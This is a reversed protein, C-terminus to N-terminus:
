DRRVRDNRMGEKFVYLNMMMIHKCHGRYKSYAPCSCVLKNNCLWVYYLKGKPSIIKWVRYTEQIIKYGSKTVIEAGM